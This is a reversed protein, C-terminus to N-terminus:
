KETSKDKLTEFFEILREFDEDSLEDISKFLYYKLEPDKEWGMLYAPSTDLVDALAEIMSIPRDRDKEIHSISTKSKLGLKHALEEQTWGKRLRLARIKEGTTM